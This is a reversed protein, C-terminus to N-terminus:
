TQMSLQEKRTIWRKRGNKKPTVKVGAVLFCEKTTLFSRQLGSSMIILHAWGSCCVALASMLPEWVWHLPHQATPLQAPMTAWHQIHSIVRGAVANVARMEGTRRRDLLLLLSSGEHHNGSEGMGAGKWLLFIRARPGTRPPSCNLQKQQLSDHPWEPSWGAWDGAWLLMLAPDNLGCQEPSPLSPLRLPAM